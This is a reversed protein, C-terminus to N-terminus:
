SQRAAMVNEGIFAVLPKFIPILEARSLALCPFPRHSYDKGLPLPFVPGPELPVYVGGAAQLIVYAAAIDWLKPSAEVGGIAAGAAVLLINYSAVGVMRVKCPFPRQLIATSRACLNFLHNHSPADPATHIPQRNLYAGTPGIIGSDGYWFGHFTHNLSPLHILGFIPTGKYLLGLSIAWLPLGRTFNTTGDIPDIAWCWDTPPLIKEDEETLIGHSPFRSAIAERLRSDAWKDAQTVLSGDPKQTIQLQSFDSLLQKGLAIATQEAVDLVATWFEVM